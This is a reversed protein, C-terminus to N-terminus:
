SQVYTLQVEHVTNSRRKCFQKIAARRFEKRFTSGSLCYLVFNIASNLLDMVYLGANVVPSYFNPFAHADLVLFLSYPLTLSVYAISLVVLTAALGLSDNELLRGKRRFKLKYYLLANGTIICFCPLITDFVLNFVTLGKLVNIHSDSMDCGPKVNTYNIDVLFLQYVYILLIAVFIALVVLKARQVTFHCKVILPATVLMLREVNLAVLIWSGYAKAVYILYTLIKCSVRSQERLNVGTVYTIWDNSLSNTLLYTCDSVALAVLFVSTINNKFRRRCLIIISCINGLLGIPVTCSVSVLVIMRKTFNETQTNSSNGFGDMQYIYSCPSCHSFSHM